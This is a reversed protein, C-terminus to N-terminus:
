GERKMLDQKGELILVAQLPKVAVVAALESFLAWTEHSYNGTESNDRGRAVLEAMAMAAQAEAQSLPFSGTWSCVWEQPRSSKTATHHTLDSTILTDTISLTM